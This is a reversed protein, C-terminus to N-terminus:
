GKQADVFKDNEILYQAHSLYLFSEYQPHKDVLAFAASWNQMDVHLRLIKEYDGAKHFIEIASEVEDLQSLCDAIKKLAEAESHDLKHGLEM